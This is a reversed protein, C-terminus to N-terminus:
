LVKTTVHFSKCKVWLATFFTRTVSFHATQMGSFDFYMVNRLVDKEELLVDEEWLRLGEEGLQIVIARTQLLDVQPTM